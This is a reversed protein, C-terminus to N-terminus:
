TKGQDRTMFFISYDIMKILEAILARLLAGFPEKHTFPIKNTKHTLLNFATKINMFKKTKEKVRFCFKSSLQRMVLFHEFM